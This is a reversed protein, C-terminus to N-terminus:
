VISEPDMGFDHWVIIFPPNNLDDENEYLQAAIENGLNWTHLVEPMNDTSPQGYKETLDSLANAVQDFKLNQSDIFVEEVAREGYKKCLLAGMKKWENSRYVGRHTEVFKARNILERRSKEVFDVYQSSGYYRAETLNLIRM